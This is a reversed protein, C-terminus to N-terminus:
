FTIFMKTINRNHLKSSLIIYHAKEQSTSQNDQQNIKSRTM